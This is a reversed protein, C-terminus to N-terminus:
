RGVAAYRRMREELQRRRHGRLFATTKQTLRISRGKGSKPDEFIWGDKPESPTRRVQLTGSELDLDEWKLGQLEGRRM